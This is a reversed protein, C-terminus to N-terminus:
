RQGQAERQIIAKWYGTGDFWPMVNQVEWSEGGITLLDASFPQAQGGPQLETKSYVVRTEETRRGEPLRLLEKGSAPQISAVISFTLTQSPQGKTWVGAVYSGAPKRTVTYTGTELADIVSGTYSLDVPM